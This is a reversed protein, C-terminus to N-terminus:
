NTQDLVVLRPAVSWCQPGPGLQGSVREFLMRAMERGVDVNRRDVTALPRVPEWEREECDWRDDYGVVGIDVNPVKGLLRLSAIALVADFDNQAMIADVPEAGLVQEALFGAFQRVRRLFGERNAVGERMEVNSVEVRPLPNLGAERLARRYGATRAQVWYTSSPSCGIELIRRHGHTVLWRALEYAGAAHDGTVRDLGALGPSDGMAVVPLGAGALKNLILQGGPAQSVVHTALVGKPRNHLLDSITSEQLMTGNLSLLHCGTEHIAEIIAADIAAEYTGKPHAVEKSGSLHTLLAVTQTMVRAEEIAQGAVVRGRIKRGAGKLEQLYGEIELQKLASRVTGRSVQLLEVLEQEVPLRQGASWHGSQIWERLM